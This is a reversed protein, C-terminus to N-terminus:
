IITFDIDPAPRAATAYPNPSWMSLRAKSSSVPRFPKVAAQEKAHFKAEIVPDPVYDRGCQSFVCFASGQKPPHKVTGAPAAKHPAVDATFPRNCTGAPVFPKNSSAKLTARLEKEKERGGEYVDMYYKPPEGLSMDQWPRGPGAAKAPSTYINRLRKASSDNAKSLLAAASGDTDFPTRVSPNVAARRYFPKSSVANGPVKSLRKELIWSDIYRDGEALSRVQKDIYADPAKGTKPPSISFQKGKWRSGEAATHKRYPEGLSPSQPESFTGFLEHSM